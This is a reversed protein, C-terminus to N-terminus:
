DQHDRITTIVLRTIAYILCCAVFLTALNYLRRPYAASQPLAPPEIVVLTKLKRVADIRANEVAALAVKYTDEAFAVQMGLDRFQSALQTLKADGGSTLPRAREIDLQRRLANIQARQAQVQAANDNLYSQLTRLETEQRTLQAQLEITLAGSARAQATPDLVNHREQFEMLRGKNQQLRESASTLEAQAFKMQERAIAQSFGNVFTESERLIEQTLRQAFAPDFGQVRLTLLSSVDDFAVEVRARYYDLFQEQSANAPLRLFPDRTGMAFHERLKLREDLRTLLELSHVYERVFLTDERSPPNIGGLLLAIGPLASTEHNAQRVTVTTESVYREAAFTAYYGGVLALPLVILLLKLALPSTFRESRM